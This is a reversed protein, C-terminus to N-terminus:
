KNPSWLIGNELLFHCIPVTGPKVHLVQFALYNPNFKATNNHCAAVAEVKTGDNGVLSLTYAVMSQAHCYFVVYIYNMVHCSVFKSGALKQVKSMTYVQKPTAAYNDVTTSLARVNRTGLTWTSFDVMSELSTACYKTEGDVPPEECDELAKKMSEAEVSNPKISLRAFIEPLKSSSFPISDAMRRPLLPTGSSTRIFYITKNAGPLLDKQLFFITAFRDQIETARSRYNYIYAHNDRVAINDKSINFKLGGKSVNVATRAGEEALIDRIARPM